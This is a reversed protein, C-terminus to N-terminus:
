FTAKTLETERQWQNSFSSVGNKSGCTDICVINPQPSNWSNQVSDFDTVFDRQRSGLWCCPSMNGQSDIYISQERLAHCDVQASIIQPVTLHHERDKRFNTDTERACLVCAAQCVDTPELHLVKLKRLNLM